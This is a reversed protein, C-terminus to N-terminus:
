AGRIEKLLDKVYQSILTGLYICSQGDMCSDADKRDLFAYRKHSGKTFHIVWADKGKDFELTVAVGNRELEPYMELLKDELAVQTYGM